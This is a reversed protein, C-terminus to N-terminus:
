QKEEIQDELEELDAGPGAVYSPPALVCAMELLTSFDSFFFSSLILLFSVLLLNMM